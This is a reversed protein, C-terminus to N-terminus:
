CEGRSRLTECALIYERNGRTEESELGNSTGVTLCHWFHWFGESCGKPVGDTLAYPSIV